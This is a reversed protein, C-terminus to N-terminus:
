TKSVADGMPSVFKLKTDRTIQDSSDEILNLEGVDKFYFTRLTLRCLSLHSAPRNPKSGSLFTPNKENGAM